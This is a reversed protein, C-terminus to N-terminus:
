SPTDVTFLFDIMSLFAFTVVGLDLENLSFVDVGLDSENLSFVDVGLDSENLSFVDVGLDLENLSFVEVGLDLEDNLSFVDVGVDLVVVVGRDLDKVAFEAPVGFIPPVGVREADMVSSFLGGGGGGEDDDDDEAAAEVLPVGPATLLGESPAADLKVGACRLSALIFFSCAARSFADASSASAACALANALSFIL